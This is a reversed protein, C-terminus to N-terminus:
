NDQSGAVKNIYEICLFLLSVGKESVNSLLLTYAEPRMM